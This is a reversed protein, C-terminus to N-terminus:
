AKRRFLGSPCARRRVLLRGNRWEFAMACGREAAWIVTCAIGGNSEPMCRVADASIRHAICTAYCHHNANSATGTAILFM